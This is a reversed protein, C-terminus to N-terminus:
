AGINEVIKTKGSKFSRKKWKMPSLSENLMIWDLQAGCVVTNICGNLVCGGVHCYM